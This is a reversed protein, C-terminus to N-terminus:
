KDEAKDIAALLKKWEASDSVSAWDVLGRRKKLRRLGVAQIQRVRERTVNLEQGISELTKQEQGLLGFRASVIYLCRRDFSPENRDIGALASEIDSPVALWEVLQPDPGASEFLDDLRSMLDLIGANGLGKLLILSYTSKGDLDALRTLGHGELCKTIRPGLRAADIFVSRWAEPISVVSPLTPFWKQLYREGAQYAELDIQEQTAEPPKPPIPPFYASGLNEMRGIERRLERLGVEGINRIKGIQTPSLGDLQGITFYRNRLLANVVRNSCELESTGREWAFEPIRWPDLMDDM